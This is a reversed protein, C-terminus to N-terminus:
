CDIDNVEQQAERVSEQYDADDVLFTCTEFERLADLYDQAADRYAECNATTPDNSYATVAATFEDLAASVREGYLATTCVGPQNGGDDDDGGCATVTFLIFPLAFLLFFKKM